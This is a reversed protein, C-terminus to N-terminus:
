LKKLSWVEAIVERVLRAALASTNGNDYPPSVEVVDFGALKPALFHILKKVQLPTLGFPEPTGTGPAYAPDIGDIDLTLYIRECKLINMVKKAISEIGEEHVQFADIYQVKPKTEVEERSISRIGLCVVNEAGAIEYLRRSVCAHNNKSNMYTDRFDLHADVTLFGTNKFARAVGITLSHE